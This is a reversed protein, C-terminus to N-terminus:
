PPTPIVPQITLYRSSKTQYILRADTQDLIFTKIKDWTQETVKLTIAAYLLNEHPDVTKQKQQSPIANEQPITYFINETM